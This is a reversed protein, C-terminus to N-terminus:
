AAVFADVEMAVREIATPAAVNAEGTLDAGIALAPDATDGSLRIAVTDAGRQLAVVQVAAAASRGARRTSQALCAHADARWPQDSAGSRADIRRGIRQVATTASM